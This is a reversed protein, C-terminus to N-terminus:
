YEPHFGDLVNALRNMTKFRKSELLSYPFGMDIASVQDLRTLQEASLKCNLYGINENFQSLTRAGLIPIVEHPQQRVWALAIQSPPRDQEAAIALVESAIQLNRETLRDNGLEGRSHVPEGAKGSYKGTLVGSGIAGWATVTLSGARAMPLLDREVTRDILSYPIQLGIFRTWGRLEALMNAESVVWAPTDSIGIYLVKGARVLDDFSRMVEDIPTIMDWAHMWYLDIYDTNLRKLSAEVAQMMNKRQNGGANPDGPNSSISYKTALVFQDRQAKVFEGLYCEATGSNYINATDIFNGGVATFAEFVQRSEEKSAGWGSDEGFTMAGLCVESVRLGSKGLLTYNM